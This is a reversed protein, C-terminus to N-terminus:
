SVRTVAYFGLEEARDVFVNLRTNNGNIENVTAAGELTTSFPIQTWRGSILSPRFRVSYRVGTVSPFEIRMRQAGTGPHLVAATTINFGLGPIDVAVTSLGDFTANYRDLRTSAPGRRVTGDPNFLSSHLPCLLGGAAASYANVPNGEHTCRSSVAHYVGNQRTVIIDRFSSPMGTVKMRVSGLENKLVPFSDLNIRFVGVQTSSQANVEAVFISDFSEGGLWSGASMLAITKVFDRRPLLAKGPNPLAEAPLPVSCSGPCSSASHTPNM